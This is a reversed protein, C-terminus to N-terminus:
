HTQAVTLSLWLTRLTLWRRLFIAGLNIPYKLVNVTEESLKNQWGSRLTSRYDSGFHVSAPDLSAM